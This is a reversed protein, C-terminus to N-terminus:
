HPSARYHHASTDTSPGTPHALRRGAGEAPKKQEKGSYEVLGYPPDTVVAHITTPLREALWELCDGQYISARGFQLVPLLTDIQAVSTM